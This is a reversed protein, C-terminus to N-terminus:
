SKDPPFIPFVKCFQVGCRPSAAPFVGPGCIPDARGETRYASDSPSAYLDRKRVKM